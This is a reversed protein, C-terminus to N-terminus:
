ETFWKKFTEQVIVLPKVRLQHHAILFYVFSVPICKKRKKKCTFISHIPSIYQMKFVHAPPSSGFPFLFSGFQLRVWLVAGVKRYNRLTRKIMRHVVTSNNSWFWEFHFLVYMYQRLVNNWQPKVTSVSIVVYLHLWAFVASNFHNWIRSLM